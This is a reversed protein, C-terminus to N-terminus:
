VSTDNSYTNQYLVSPTIRLKGIPQWALALRLASTNGRNANDDAVSGNYNLRDVWGGDDRRWASIRYGLTGDVILGGAAIGAEFSADGNDTMSYEGRARMSRDTLSPEPTIFRVAGGVAGAGFLTGQPGRLVEVRDLDFIRPYPNSASQSTGTRIQVPTDDIYIGTTPVGSTSRIGRVTINSQSSNYRAAREFAVGPTFRAVDDVNKVGQLDLTEQNYATVSLAVKSLAVAQRTATVVIEDLTEAQQGAPAGASQAVAATAALCAVLAGPLVIMPMRKDNM